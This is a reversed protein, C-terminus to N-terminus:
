PIPMRPTDADWPVDSPAVMTPDSGSNRLKDLIELYQKQSKAKLDHGGVFPQNEIAPVVVLGQGFFTLELPVGATFGAKGRFEEPLTLRYNKDLTTTM